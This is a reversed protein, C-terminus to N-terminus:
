ENYVAGVVDGSFFADGQESGIDVTKYGDSNEATIGDSNITIKGASGELQDFDHQDKAHNESTKDPTSGNITLKGNNITLGDSDIRVDGGGGIGVYLDFDNPTANDVPKGGDDNVQTWDATSGLGAGDNVQSTDTIRTTEWSTGNYRKLASPSMSTDVWLKGTYPSNPATSSKIIEGEAGVDNPSTPTLKVWSTTDSEYRKLINPIPTIDIWLDGDNPNSPATMSKPIKAQAYNKANEEATDAVGDAYNEVDTKTSSVDDQSAGQSGNITLKGNAISIGSNDIVVDGSSATIPNGDADTTAVTATGDDAVVMKNTSLWDSDDGETLAQVWAIHEVGKELIVNRFIHEYQETGKDKIDTKEASTKQIIIADHKPDGSSPTIGVNFGKLLNNDGTWDWDIYIDKYVKAM